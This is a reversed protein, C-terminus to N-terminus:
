LCRWGEESDLTGHRGRDELEDFLQSVEEIKKEELQFKLNEVM